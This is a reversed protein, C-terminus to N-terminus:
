LCKEEIANGDCILKKHGRINPKTLIKLLAFLENTVSIGYLFLTKSNHLSGSFVYQLVQPSKASKCVNVLSVV